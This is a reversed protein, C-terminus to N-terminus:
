PGPIYIPQVFIEMKKSTHEMTNHTNSSGSLEILQQQTASQSNQGRMPLFPPAALPTTARGLPCHYTGYLSSKLKLAHTSSRFNSYYGMYVPKYNNTGRPHFFVKGSCNDASSDKSTNNAGGRRLGPLRGVGLELVCVPPLKIVGKELSRIAVPPIPVWGLPPILHSPSYRGRSTGGIRIM